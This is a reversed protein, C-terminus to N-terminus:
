GDQNHTRTHQTVLQHVLSFTAPDTLETTTTNQGRTENQVHVLLAFSARRQCELWRM